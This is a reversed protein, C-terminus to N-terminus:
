RNWLFIRWEFTVAVGWLKSPTRFTQEPTKITDVKWVELETPETGAMVVKSGDPSFAFASIPDARKIEFRTALTSYDMAAVTKGGTFYGFKYGSSSLQPSFVGKTWPFYPTILTDHVSAEQWSASNLGVSQIGQSSVDKFVYYVNKGSPDYELWLPTSTNNVYDEVKNVVRGDALNFGFIMGQDNLLAAQQNDPSIAIEFVPGFDGTDEWSITHEELLDGSVLDWVRLVLEGMSSYSIAVARTADRSIRINRYYPYFVFPEHIALNPSLNRQLFPSYVLPLRLLLNKNMRQFSFKREMFLGVREMAM